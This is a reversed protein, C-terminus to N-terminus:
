EELILDLPAGISQISNVRLGGIGGSIFGRVGSRTGGFLNEM